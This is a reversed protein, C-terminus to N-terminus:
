TKTRNKKFEDESMKVSDSSTLIDSVYNRMPLTNDDFKSVSFHNGLIKVEKFSHDSYFAYWTNTRQLHIFVPYQVEM